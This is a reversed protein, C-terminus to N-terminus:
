QVRKEGLVSTRYRTVAGRTNRLRKAGGVHHVNCTEGAPRQAWFQPTPGKGIGQHNRCSRAADNAVAMEVGGVKGEGEGAGQSPHRRSQPPRAGCDMCACACTRPWTRMCTRRRTCTDAHAYASTWKSKSTYTQTYACTHVHCLSLPSWLAGFVTSPKSM